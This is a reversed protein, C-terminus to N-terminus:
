RGSAAPRAVVLGARSDARCGEPHLTVGPIKRKALEIGLAGLRERCTEPSVIQPRSGDGPSFDSSLLFDARDGASKGQVRYSLSGGGEPGHARIEFLVAGDASRALPTKNERISMARAATSDFGILLTLLLCGTASRRIQVHEIKRYAM